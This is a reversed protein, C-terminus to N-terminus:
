GQQTRAQQAAIEDIAELTKLEYKRINQLESLIKANGIDEMEDISRLTANSRERIQLIHEDLKPNEM